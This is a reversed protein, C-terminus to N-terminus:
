RTVEEQDRARGRLYALAPRKFHVPGSRELWAVARAPDADAVAQTYAEGAQQVGLQAAESAVALEALRVEMGAVSSAADAVAALGADPDPTEAPGQLLAIRM